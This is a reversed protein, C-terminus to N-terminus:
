DWCETNCIPKKYPVGLVITISQGPNLYGWVKTRQLNDDLIRM